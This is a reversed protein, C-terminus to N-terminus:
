RTDFLHPINGPTVADNLMCPATEKPFDRYEWKDGSRRFVYMIDRQEPTSSGYGESSYTVYFAFSDSEVGARIDGLEAGFRQPDCHSNNERCWDLDRHNQLYEVFENRYPDDKPPFVQVLTNRAYDYVSLEVPHTPAFHVESHQILSFRSRSTAVVWGYITRKLALSSSFVITCEASPNLHTTVIVDDAVFELNEISGFCLTDIQGTDHEANTAFSKSTWRHKQKDYSRIWFLSPSLTDYVVVYRSGDWRAASDGAKQQLSEASLGVIPIDNSRLIDALTNPTEAPVKPPFIALALISVLLRM